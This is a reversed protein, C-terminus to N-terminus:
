LVQELLPIIRELGIGRSAKLLVIDNKTIDNAIARVLREMDSLDFTESWFVLAKNHQKKKLLSSFTKGFFLFAFYDHSLANDLIESHIALSNDGLEFMDGLVLIKKGDIKLSNFFYLASLMSERNANYCDNIIIPKTNLVQSRGFVLPVTELGQKIELAGLGFYEGVAIAASANHMNHIGPMGFDITEGCYEFVTHFVSQEVVHLQNKKMGYEIFNGKVDKKLFNNYQENEPIFGISNDNFGYFIDKKEEAIAHKTGLIGIHATGINTIVAINPFLVQALEFIEGKRNMGLEFVGIEHEARISFVSLPLGTESNLNGENMVVSFKQKLVSAICEKVTTKGTSGTIGIKKLQPFQWVYAKALLQLAKLNNNTVVFSVGQSSYTKYVTKKNKPFTDRELFVISAGRQIAEDIFIHGNQKTGVLPIFLSNEQVTRSDISVGTFIPNESALFLATGDVANLLAHFNLLTHNNSEM